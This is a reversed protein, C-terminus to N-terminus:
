SRRRRLAVFPFLSVLEAVQAATGWQTPFDDSDLHSNVSFGDSNRFSLDRVVRFKGPEGSKEVVGLPSSAFHGGLFNQVETESFPGSMRGLSIEDACYARIVDLHELASRHNKPTYTRSLPPIDGIPFGNRMNFTLDPYVHQLNYQHLLDDYADADYPTVVRDRIESAPNQPPVTTVTEVFPVSMFSMPPTNLLSVVGSISPFASPHPPPSSYSNVRGCASSPPTKPHQLTRATAPETDTGVASSAFPLTPLHRGKARGFPSAM